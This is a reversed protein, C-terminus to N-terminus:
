DVRAGSEKIVKAWKATEAKIYASFQEPTGGLGEFGLTFLREKVDPMQLIKTIERNVRGVVEKPTGAPALIGYWNEVEYGPLSEAITPVDPAVASRKGSTVGLAVLRGTKLHPLAAPLSIYGLLMQGGLLDALIPGAGKYPVHVMEVGAMRKFLEGGLHQPTGSGPSAFNVQGARSKALAILEKVSKAPLSPHSVLILTSSATLIVPAFDKLLDFPLKSYLTVNIPHGVYGVLLTHGDPQAKAAIEAAINGGAGTRNDIVVQQGLADGLKPGVTRSLIDAAGAPPFPVILRIPKTPYTTQAFAGGAANILLGASLSLWAFRSSIRM